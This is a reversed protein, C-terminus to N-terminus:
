PKKARNTPVVLSIIGNVLLTIAGLASVIIDSRGVKVGIVLVAIAALLAACLLLCVYTDKM